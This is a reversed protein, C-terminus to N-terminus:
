KIGWDSLDNGQMLDLYYDFVELATELDLNGQFEVINNNTLLTVSNLLTKNNQQVILEFKEDKMSKIIM